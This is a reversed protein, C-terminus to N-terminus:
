NGIANNMREPTWYDLPDDPSIADPALGSDPSVPEITQPQADGSQQMDWDPQNVANNVANNVVTRDGNRLVYDVFARVNDEGIYFSKLTDLINTQLYGMDNVSLSINRYGITKVDLSIGMINGNNMVDPENKASTDALLLHWIVAYDTLTYVTSVYVDGEFYDYHIQNFVLNERLNLDDILDGLTEPVYYPNKFPYYGDYDEFKVAIACESSISRLSYIDCNIAYEKGEYADYGSATATGVLETIEAPDIELTGFWSGSQDIEWAGLGAESQDFLVTSVTYEVGNFIVTSFKQTIPMEDWHPTM